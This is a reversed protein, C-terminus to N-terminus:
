DFTGNLISSFKELKRDFEVQHNYDQFEPLARLYDIEAIAKRYYEFAEDYQKLNYSTDGLREYDMLGVRPKGARQKEQVALLAYKKAEEMKWSNFCCDSLYNYYPLLNKKDKTKQEAEVAKKYYGIAEDFNDKNQASAGLALYYNSYYSNKDRQAYDSCKLYYSDIEAEKGAPPYLSYNQLAAYLKDCETKSLKQPQPKASAATKQPAPPQIKVGNENPQVLINLSIIILVTIATPIVIWLWDNNKKPRFDNFSNEEEEVAQAQELIERQKEEYEEPYFNKYLQEGAPTDMPVICDRAKCKFCYNSDPNRSTLILFLIEFAVVVFAIPAFLGIISTIILTLLWFVAACGRTQGEQYQIYGCNRCIYKNGYNRIIMM